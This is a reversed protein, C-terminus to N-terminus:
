SLGVSVDFYTRTSRKQEKETKIISIISQIPLNQLPLLTATNQVHRHFQELM